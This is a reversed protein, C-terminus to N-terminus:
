IAKRAWFKLTQWMGGFGKDPEKYWCGVRHYWNRYQNSKMQQSLFIM